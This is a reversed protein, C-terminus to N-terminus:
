KIAVWNILLILCKLYFFLQCLFHTAFKYFDSYNESKLPPKSYIGIKTVTKGARNFAWFEHFFPLFRYFDVKRWPPPRPGLVTSKTPGTKRYIRYRAIATWFSLFTVLFIVFRRSKGHRWKRCNQDFKVGLKM